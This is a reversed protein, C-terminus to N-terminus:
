KASSSESASSSSESSSSSSESSSSPAPAQSSSSSPAPTSSSSESSSSEIESSSSSVPKAPVYDGSLGANMGIGYSAKLLGGYANEFVGTPTAGEVTYDGPSTKSQTVTSPMKWDSGDGKTEAMVYNMLAHYIELPLHATYGNLGDLPVKVDMAKDYGTWVSIVASRTYGTFWLDQAKGAAFASDSPYDVTGSKGAQVYTPTTPNLVNYYGLSLTGTQTTVSKLMSNMMFATSSKMAKKGTPDLDHTQGDQTQISHIYTPKYYTGGNSFAGFAAAEQATSIPIGIASSGQLDVNSMGLDKLWTHTKDDNAGDIYIHNDWLNQLTNLAPVNLSRTIAGRMTVGANLAATQDYGADGVTINTGKYTFPKVDPVPQDTGWNLYEISPGYDVLPKATSGSSRTEQTARNLGMLTSQKRGGIQAIVEGNTPNTITIGTQVPDQGYSKDDPFSIGYETATEDNNVLDYAKKQIDMNINTKVTLGDRNVDYKDAKLEALVSTIYSDAYKAAEAEKHDSEHTTVLGDTIPTKMLKKAEAQSLVNNAAMAALVEDRRNKAHVPNTYPDYGSPSQPLGAILAIETTSLDAMSKGYYYKAATKMGYVGNGEYVKNMYLTLIQSKSYQKELKIALWAEQAKRRMTQDATSTSFVTLKILQQTLTSGGQLGLSSGTVNAMAAGIIRQPDVGGHKYFRRDEISVVAERLKEPIESQAAIERQENGTTYIVDGKYDLLQTQSTGVLKANTVKPASSAYYAFIGVGALVGVIGLTVLGLFINLFIRKGRSMKGKKSPRKTSKRGKKTPKNSGTRQSRTMRQEAM